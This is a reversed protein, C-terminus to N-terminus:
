IRLSFKYMCKYSYVFQFSKGEIHLSVLAKCAQILSSLFYSGDRNELNKIIMDKVILENAIRMDTARDSVNSIM